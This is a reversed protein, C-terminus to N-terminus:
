EPDPPLSARVAAVLRHDAPTRCAADAHALDTRAGAVDGAAARLRAREIRADPDAPGEALLADVAARAGPLDGRLRALRALVLRAARSRPDLRVAELACAEARALDGRELCARALGGLAPVSKPALRLAAEFAAAAQDTAGLAGHCAGLSLLVEADPGGDPAALYAQLDARAAEAAGTALRAFGRVRLGPGNTRREVATEAEALAEPWRQLALLAAALREHGRWADPDLAVARAADARAGEPDGLLVRAESRECWVSALAPNLGLAVTADRAAGVPDGRALSIHARNRWADVFGPDLVVARTAAARAGDLDGRLALTAALSALYRPVDPARAVVVEMDALAGALDDRRYRLRSRQFLAAVDDPRADALLAEARDLDGADVARRAERV